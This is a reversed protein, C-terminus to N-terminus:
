KEHELTASQFFPTVLKKLKKQMPVFLCFPSGSNGKQKRM